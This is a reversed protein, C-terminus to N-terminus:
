DESQDILVSRLDMLGFDANDTAILRQGLGKFVGPSSEL